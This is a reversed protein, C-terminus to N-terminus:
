DKGITIDNSVVKEQDSLPHREQKWVVNKDESSGPVIAKGEKGFRAKANMLDMKGMVYTNHIIEQRHPVLEASLESL